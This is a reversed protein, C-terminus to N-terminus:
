KKVNIKSDFIFKVGNIYKVIWNDDGIRFGDKIFFLKNNKYHINIYPLYIVDYSNTIQKIAMNLAIPNYLHDGDIKIFWENKPIHNLIYNYYTDLRLNANTNNEYRNDHAPIVHYPYLIDKFGNNNEAFKKLIKSTGDDSKQENLHYGLIGNIVGGQLMTELSMKITQKENYARLFAYLKIEQNKNFFDYYKYYFYYLDTRKKISKLLKEFFKM